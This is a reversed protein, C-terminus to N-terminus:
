REPNAKWCPALIAKMQQLWNATPESWPRASAKHHDDKFPDASDVSIMSYGQDTPPPHDASYPPVKKQAEVAAPFKRLQDILGACTRSDASEGDGSMPKDFRM